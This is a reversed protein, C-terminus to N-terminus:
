EMGFCVPKNLLRVLKPNACDKLHLTGPLRMVRPLDKVAPDTGLKAILQQQLVSFQDLSVETFFYFHYGRGSDVIMSPHTGHAKFQSQCRAAQEKNDADVFLARPRTINETKRGNFDTESITVFVGIGQQPTNLSLVKQWTEDLTGHFVEAHKKTKDDAFFQFTFKTAKPDLGVLFRRAMEKDHAPMNLEAGIGSSSPLPPM